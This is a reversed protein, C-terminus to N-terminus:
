KEIMGSLLRRVDFSKKQEYELLRNLNQMQRNHFNNQPHKETPSLDKKNFYM